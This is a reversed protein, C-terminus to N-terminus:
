DRAKLTPTSLLAASGHEIARVVSMAVAETAALVTMRERGIAANDNLITSMQRRDEISLTDGVHELARDHAMRDVFPRFPEILDDVLNFANTKSAHHVGFAPLLGLAVCARAIAARMIAYGYNLLANRRDNENARTFDSFLSAWYARAAQAEVNGPDGSAVRGAMAAITQGQPRGLQDLLAAQNRIKAVVLTQWLRKKLPQSISIQAHAIHAQAHHQHFPLLIGAPHHRADPVIMAVGNEALASLLSGTISVQRTDLILCAIDEVALSVEGGDQAVVLQRNRHTM